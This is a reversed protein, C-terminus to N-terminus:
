EAKKQENSIAKNTLVAKVQAARNAFFHSAYKLRGYVHIERHLDDKNSMIAIDMAEQVIYFSSAPGSEIFHKTLLRLLEQMETDTM